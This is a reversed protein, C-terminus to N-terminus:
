ACDGYAKQSEQQDPSSGRKRNWRPIEIAIYIIYIYIYINVGAEHNYELRTGGLKKEGDVNFLMMTDSPSDLKRMDWWNVRGDTSTSVLENGTKSHLWVIDYVPDHHSKEIDTCMEPAWINETGPSKRFDWISIVGNYQGGALM